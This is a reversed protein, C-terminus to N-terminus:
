WRHFRAFSGPAGGGCRGLRPAVPSEAQPDLRKFHDAERDIAHRDRSFAPGTSIQAVLTRAREAHTPTPVNVDYLPEAADGTSRAHADESMIRGSPRDAAGRRPGPIWGQLRAVLRARCNMPSAARRATVLTQRQAPHIRSSSGAVSDKAPGQGAEKTGRTETEESATAQDKGQGEQWGQRGHRSREAM